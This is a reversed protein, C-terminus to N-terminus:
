SGPGELVCVQVDMHTLREQLRTRQSEVQKVRASKEELESQIQRNQLSLREIDTEMATLRSTKSQYDHMM